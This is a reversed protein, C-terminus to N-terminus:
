SNDEQEDPTGQELKGQEAREKSQAIKKQKTREKSKEIAGIYKRFTARNIGIVGSAKSQNGNYRQDFYGCMTVNFVRLAVPYLAGRTLKLDRDTLGDMIEVLANELQTTFQRRVVDAERNYSRMSEEPSQAQSRADMVDTSRTTQLENKSSM